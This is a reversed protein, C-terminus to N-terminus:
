STTILLSSAMLCPMKSTEGNFPYIAFNQLFKIPSANHDILGANAMAIEQYAPYDEESFNAQLM